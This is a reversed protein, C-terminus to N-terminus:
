FLPSEVYVFVCNGELWSSVQPDGLDDRPDTNSIWICPKGWTVKKKGRYKDTVYFEKQMGLWQKFGHFFKLGGNLDDFVAYQVGETPEEM